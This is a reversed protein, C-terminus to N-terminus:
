QMLQVTIEGPTLKADASFLVDERPAELAYNAVGEVHFLAEGIQAALLPGGLPLAELMGCLAAKCQAAVLGADYGYEALVRVSLDVPTYVAGRVLIDTGIERNHEFDAQIQSRLTEEPAQSATLIIVDVTGKGRARPLVAAELVGDYALAKERYTDANAGNPMKGLRDALRRRLHDDTETDAGGDFASPNTVQTVGQPPNVPITIKGAAVNSDAGTELARAPVLAQTEGEPLISPELTVFQKGQTGPAACIIGSPLQAEPLTEAEPRSFLLMGEAFSAEKRALGWMAALQDLQTGTATSPFFQRQIWSIRSHLAFLQGALVRLRIGADSADDPRNGSHTEYAAFMEDLLGQYTYDDTAPM